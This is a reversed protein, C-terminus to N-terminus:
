TIPGHVFAITQIQLKTIEKALGACAFYDGSSAEKGDPNFDFVIKAIPKDRQVRAVREKIGNVVESTIPNAITVFIGRETPVPEEASARVAFLAAAALLAVRYAARIRVASWPAARRHISM